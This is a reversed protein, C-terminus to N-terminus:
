LQFMVIMTHLVKSFFLPVLDVDNMTVCNADLELHDFAANLLLGKMFPEEDDQEIVYLTFTHNTHGYHHQLYSSMYKKYQELHYQRDRYPVIIAHNNTQPEITRISTLTEDSGYQKARENCIAKFMQEDSLYRNTVIPNYKVDKPINNLVTQVYQRQQRRHDTWNRKSYDIRRLIRNKSQVPVMFSFYDSSCCGYHHEISM